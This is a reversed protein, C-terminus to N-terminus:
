LKYPSYSKFTGVEKFRWNMIQGEEMLTWLGFLKTWPESAFMYATQNEVPVRVYSLPSINRFYFVRAHAPFRKDNIYVWCAYSGELQELANRIADIPSTEFDLHYAIRAAILDSDIKLFPYFKSLEKSIQKKWDLLIGNHGIVVSDVRRPQVESNTGQVTPARVHGLVYKSYDPESSFLRARIELEAQSFPKAWTNLRLNRLYGVGQDGRRTQAQLGEIFLAYHDLRLPRNSVLGAIGCM